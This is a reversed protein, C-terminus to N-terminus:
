ATLTRDEYTWVAEAIEENTPEAHQAAGIDPSAVTGTYGSATQLYTGRGAGKAADLNIRFDGTAPAVWPTVDAPYTVSGTEEGFVTLGNTAGLANVQTGSGFGCNILQIFHTLTAETSQVGYGANKVFNSNEVYMLAGSTTNPDVRLGDGGNNYSDCGIMSFSNNRALSAFGHGGNTDAICRVFSGTSAGPGNIFGVSNSGTNDHAICRVAQNGTGNLVIGGTNASNSQNCAYAECEVLLASGTVNMGHGRIDHAVVRRLTVGSASVSLGVATGTAGNNQFVMDELIVGSSSVTLLIYSAGSTGGDIVARGGDGYSSSYGKFVLTGTNAHTVAASISYTTANKFNVRPFLGASNTGTNQVFNFPFGSAGNPGEWAGGIKLTRSGTGDAPATGHKATLSVTITTADRATVRGVFGTVASGDAYVSAFDGVAVGDSSPNGSAVTFVGTSQVWSGSAYTFDAATGPETSSGTRTGANLNSGGSRCCFETYAL